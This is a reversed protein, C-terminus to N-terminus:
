RALFSLLVSMAGLVLLLGLLVYANVATWMHRGRHPDLFLGYPPHKALSPRYGTTPHV